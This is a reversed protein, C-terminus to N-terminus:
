ASYRLWLAGLDPACSKLSRSLVAEKSFESTLRLQAYRLPSPHKLGFNRFIIGRRKAIPSTPKVNRERVEDIKSSQNRLENSILHLGSVLFIVHFGPVETEQPGLM